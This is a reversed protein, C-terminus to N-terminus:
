FYNNKLYFINLTYKAANVIPFIVLAWSMVASASFDPRALFSTIDRMSWSTSIAYMCTFFSPTNTSGPKPLSTFTCRGARMPRLGAVPSDIWILAFVTTFNRTAFAALSATRYDFVESRIHSAGAPAPTKRTRLNPTLYNPKAYTLVADHDAHGATSGGPQRVPSSAALGNAAGGRHRPDYGWFAFKARFRMRRISGRVM